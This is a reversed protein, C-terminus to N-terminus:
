KLENANNKKAAMSKKQAIQTKYRDSVANLEKVVEIYQSNSPVTSSADIFNLIARFLSDVALRANRM